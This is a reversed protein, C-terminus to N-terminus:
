FLIPFIGYRDQKSFEQTDLSAKTEYLYEANFAEIEELETIKLPNGNKEEKKIMEELKAEAKNLSAQLKENIAKMNFQKYEYERITVKLAAIERGLDLHM